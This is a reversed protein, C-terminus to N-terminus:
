SVLPDTQDAMEVLVMSKPMEEMTALFQSHFAKEVQEVQDMYVLILAMQEMEERAEAVAVMVGEEAEAEAQQLQAELVV